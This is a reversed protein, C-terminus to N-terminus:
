HLPVIEDGREPDVRYVPLSMTPAANYHARFPNSNDRGIHWAREIEAESPSVYSCCMDAIM